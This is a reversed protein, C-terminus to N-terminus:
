LFGPSPVYPGSSRAVAAIMARARWADQTANWMIHQGDRSKTKKGWPSVKGKKTTGVWRIRGKWRTWSFRQYKFSASRGFEVISAHHATNEIRGAAIYLPSAPRSVKWSRKYTGVVGGRHKANLKNNVPSDAIGIMKVTACFEDRFKGVGGTGGPRNCQRWVKRSDITVRIPM